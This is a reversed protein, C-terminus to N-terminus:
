PGKEPKRMRRLADMMPGQLMAAMQKLIAPNRSMAQKLQGAMAAPLAGQGVLEEIQKMLSEPDTMAGIDAVAPAAEGPSAAGVKAPTALETKPLAGSALETLQRDLESDRQRLAQLLKERTHLSLLFAVRRVEPDPDDGRWRLAAQARPDHLLRRQLLRVLALRRLDAHPSGLAVLSAEPSDGGHVKELSALAARRVEPVNAHLTGTLRAMAQDDKAALAELAEVARVGVDAKEAKLALTLPRLDNPGAHRRLGEFAALRVAEDKHELGKELAKAARPHASEGLLRCALLRLAHDADATMQHAIRKVAAADAWGALARLAAERRKPDSQALENKAWADAGHCFVMGDGFKGEDDLQFFRLSNDECAAVVHPKGLVPIVALAVVKGVGDKLTVPRAGKARPWSKLTGDGSGTIFRDHTGAIMATIPQEHNAGRGRDEAELRGRAHTSLLKQDAGASLFRLEDAEFLLATVAAEHLPASDSLQFTAADTECEYVAVTGKATGVALWKGTPDAALSTVPDSLELTQSSTRDGRGTVTVRPGAAVGLRNDALPALAVIPAESRMSTRCTPAGGAPVPYIAQDSGGIWLDDGVALLVQGCAPLASESLTLKEPDLRYLPTPQGEPHVTVFVVAGGSVALAKVDGRYTLYKDTSM